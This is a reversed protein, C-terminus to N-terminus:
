SLGKGIGEKADLFAIDALPRKKKKKKKLYGWM